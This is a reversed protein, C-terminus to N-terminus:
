QITIGELDSRSLSVPPPRKNPNYVYTGKQIMVAEDVSVTSRKTEGGCAALTGLAVAGMVLRRITQNM